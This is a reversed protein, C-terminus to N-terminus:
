EKSGVSYEYTTPTANSKETDTQWSLWLYKTTVVVTLRYNAKKQCLASDVEKKQLTILRTKVMPHSGLFIVQDTLSVTLLLHIEWVSSTNTVTLVGQTKGRCTPEPCDHNSICCWICGGGGVGLMDVYSDKHLCCFCCDQLGRPCHTGSLFCFSVQDTLISIGLHSQNYSSSM